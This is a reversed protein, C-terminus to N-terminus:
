SSVYSSRVSRVFVMIQSEIQSQFHEIISNDLTLITTNSSMRALLLAQTLGDHGTADTPRNSILLLSRHNIGCCGNVIGFCVLRDRDRSVVLTLETYGIKLGSQVRHINAPPTRGKGALTTTSIPRSVFILTTSEGPRQM